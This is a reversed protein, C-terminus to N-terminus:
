KAMGLKVRHAGIASELREQGSRNNRVLYSICKLVEHFLKRRPINTAIDPEAVTAVTAGGADQTRNDAAPKRALDLRLINIM